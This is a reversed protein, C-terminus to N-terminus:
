CCNLLDFPPQIFLPAPWCLLASPSALVAGGTDGLTLTGPFECCMASNGGGGRKKQKRIHPYFCLGEGERGEAQGEPGWCGGAASGVDRCAGLPTGQGRLGAPISPALFGVPFGLGSEGDGQGQARVAFGWGPSLIWRQGQVGTRLCAFVPSGGRGGEQVRLPSTPWVFGWKSAPHMAHESGSQASLMGGGGWHGRASCHGGVASHQPPAPLSTGACPLIPACGQPLAPSTPILPVEGETGGGLLGM